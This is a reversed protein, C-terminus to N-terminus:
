DLLAKGEEVSEIAGDYSMLRVVGKTLSQFVSASSGVKSHVMATVTLLGGFPLENDCQGIGDVIAPTYEQSFASVIEGAFKALSADWTVLPGHAFAPIRVQVVDSDDVSFNAGLLGYEYMGGRPRFYEITASSHRPKMRGGAFSSVDWVHVQPFPPLHPPEDVWLRIRFTPQVFSYQALSSGMRKTM